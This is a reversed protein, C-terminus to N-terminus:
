LFNINQLGDPSLNQSPRRSSERRSSSRGSLPKEKGSKDENQAYGILWDTSYNLDAAMQLRQSPRLSAPNTTTAALDLTAGRIDASSGTISSAGNTAFNTPWRPNSDADDDYLSRSRWRAQKEGKYQETLSRQRRIRHEQIVMYVVAIVLAAAAVMVVPGYMPLVLVPDESDSSNGDADISDPSNADDDMGSGDTSNSSPIDVLSPAITVVTEMTNTAATDTPVAEEPLPPSVSIIAPDSGADVNGRGLLSVDFFVGACELLWLCRRADGCSECFDCALPRIGTEDHYVQCVFQFVSQANEEQMELSFPYKQSEFQIMPVDKHLYFNTSQTTRRDAEHKLHVNVSDETIGGALHMCNEIAQRSTRSVSELALFSCESRGGPHPITRCQLSEYAEMYEWFRLDSGHYINAFCIRILTEEVLEAGTVGEAPNPKLCYRGGNTCDQTCRVSEPLVQVEVELGTDPDTQLERCGHEVGIGIYYHPNVHIIQNQKRFRHVMGKLQPWVGDNIAPSQALNITVDLGLPASIVSIEQALHGLASDPYPVYTSRSEGWNSTVAPVADLQSTVPLVFGISLCVIVLVRKM